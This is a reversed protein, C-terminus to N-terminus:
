VANRVTEVTTAVVRMVGANVLASVRTEADETTENEQVKSSAGYKVWSKESGIVIEHTVSVEISDGPLLGPAAPQIKM